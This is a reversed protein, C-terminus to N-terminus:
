RMKTIRADRNVAKSNSPETSFQKRLRNIVIISRVASRLKRAANYRKFKKAAASLHDDRVDISTMWPHTLLKAATWRRDPDIVIMRLVFDRAERSIPGWDEPEFVPPAATVTRYEEAFTANPLLNYPPYGCLLIYAIVGMSWVDAQTGYGAPHLKVGALVEPATYGPTGCQRHLREGDAMVQALGWDTVKINLDSKADMLLLNEPKLDLHVVSRSHYYGMTQVLLKCVDRALLESYKKKSVIRDFLEGGSCLEECLVLSNEDEFVNWLAVIHPHHLMRMIAIENLVNKTENVSLRGKEVVKAACPLGSTRHRALYVNAFHGSGIPKPDQKYEEEYQRYPKTERTVMSKECLDHVRRASAATSFQLLLAKAKDTDVDRCVISLVVNDGSGEKIEIHSIMDYSKSLKSGVAGHTKRVVIHLRQTDTSVYRAQMQGFRNRKAAIEEDPRPRAERRPSMLSM